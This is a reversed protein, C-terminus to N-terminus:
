VRVQRTLALFKSHMFIYGIALTVHNSLLHVIHRVDDYYVKGRHEPNEKCAFKYGRTKSEGYDGSELRPCM